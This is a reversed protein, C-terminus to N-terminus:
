NNVHVVDEAQLILEEPIEIGSIRASELNISLFFDATEIPVDKPSVGKAIQHALRGAQQGTKEYYQGYSIMIGRKALGTGSVLPLKHKVSSEVFLKVNPVLFISHLLWIADVGEPITNLATTLQEQTKTEALVLKISLKDAAKKLDAYSFYEVLNGGHFPVFIKDTEPAATLLWELAKPNSGGIKIGTINEKTDLLNDVIGSRIPDYIPAFIIPTGADRFMEKAKLTPPTTVTFLIDIQKAKLSELTSNVENMSVPSPHIFEIHRKDQACLAALTKKFSDVIPTLAPNPNIIGVRINPNEVKNLDCAATILSLSIFLLGCLQLISIRLKVLSPETNIGNNGTNTSM